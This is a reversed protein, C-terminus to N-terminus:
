LDFMESVAVPLYHTRVQPRACGGPPSRFLSVFVHQDIFIPIPIVTVDLFVSFQIIHITRHAQM